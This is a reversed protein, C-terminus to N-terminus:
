DKRSFYCLAKFLIKIIFARLEYPFILLLYKIAMIFRIKRYKSFGSKELAHETMKLHLKNILFVDRYYKFFKLPNKLNILKSRIGNIRNKVSGPAPPGFGKFFLVESIQYLKTESLAYVLFAIDIGGWVRYKKYLEPVIGIFRLLKERRWIGCFLNSKHTNDMLVFLSLADVREFNSFFNFSQKPKYDAFFSNQRSVAEYGSFVMDLEPNKLFESICKEIFDPSIKDDDGIWVFFEGKSQKLVFLANPWAQINEKQRFHKIRKDKKAYEKIIKIVEKNPSCNDSIIIEINQYTQSIFSNLCDELYESRNYVPLGISVLPIKKKKDALKESILNVM